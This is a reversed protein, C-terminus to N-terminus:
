KVQTYAAIEKELAEVKPGLIFRQSQYVEMTAAIIEEEITNYQTKLDLLPINM